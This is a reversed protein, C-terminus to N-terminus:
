STHSVSQLFSATTAPVEAAECIGCGACAWDAGGGGDGACVEVGVGGAGGGRRHRLGRSLNVRFRTVSLAQGPTSGRPKGLRLRMPALTVWRRCDPGLSGLAPFWPDRDALNHTM